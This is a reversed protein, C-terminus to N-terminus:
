QTGVAQSPFTSPRCVGSSTFGSCFNVCKFSKNLSSPKPVPQYTQFSHQESDLFACDNAHMYSAPNTLSTDPVLSHSFVEINCGELRQICQANEHVGTLSLLSPESTPYTNNQFSHTGLCHMEYVQNVRAPPCPWSDHQQLSNYVSTSHLLSCCFLVGPLVWKCQIPKLVRSLSLPRNILIYHNTCVLPILKGLGWLRRLARCYSM